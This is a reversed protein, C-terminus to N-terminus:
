SSILPLESFKISWGRGHSTSAFHKRDQARTRRARAVGCPRQRHRLYKGVSSTGRRYRYGNYGFYRRSFTGWMRPAVVVFEDLVLNKTKRYQESYMGVFSVRAVRCLHVVPRLSQLWGTYLSLPRLSWFQPFRLFFATHAEYRLVRRFSLFFFTCTAHM